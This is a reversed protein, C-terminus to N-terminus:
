SPDPYPQSGFWMARGRFAGWRRRQLVPKIAARLESEIRAQLASELGPAQHMPGPPAAPRGGPLEEVPDDGLAPTEPPPHCRGRGLLRRGPRAQPHQQHFAAPGPAALRAPVEFEGGHM